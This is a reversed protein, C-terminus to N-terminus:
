PDPESPLLKKTGQYWLQRIILGRLALSLMLNAWFFLPCHDLISDLKAYLMKKKEADCVETPAYVAVVSMFGLIHKLRLRMIREDVPTVVVVSLQLRSSIGIAIEKFRM